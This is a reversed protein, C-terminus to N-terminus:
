LVERIVVIVIAMALMVCQMENAHRHLLCRLSQRPSFLFRM